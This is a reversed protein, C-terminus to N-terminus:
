LSNQYPKFNSIADFSVWKGPRFPHPLWRLYRPTKGRVDGSHIALIQHPSLPRDAGDDAVPLVIGRCLKTPSFM